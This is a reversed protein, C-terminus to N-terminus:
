GVKAMKDETRIYTVEFPKVSRYKQKRVTPSLGNLFDAWQYIDLGRDLSIKWGTDTQIYRAHIDGEEHKWKFQIGMEQAINAVIQLNEAQEDPFDSPKTALFM